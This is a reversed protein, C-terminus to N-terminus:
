FHWRCFYRLLFLIHILMHALFTKQFIGAMMKSFSILTKRWWIAILCREQYIWICRHQLCSDKVVKNGQIRFQVAMLWQFQGHRWKWIGQGEKLSKSLINAGCSILWISHFVLYLFQAAVRPKFHCCHLTIHNFTFAPSQNAYADYPFFLRKTAEQMYFKRFIKKRGIQVRTALSCLLSTWRGRHKNRWTKSVRRGRRQGGEFEWVLDSQM